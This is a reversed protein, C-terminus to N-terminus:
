TSAEAAQRDADATFNIMDLGVVCEFATWLGRRYFVGAGAVMAWASGWAWRDPGDGSAV